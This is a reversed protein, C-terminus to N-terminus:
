VGKRARRSARLSCADIDPCYRMKTWQSYLWKGGSLRKGCRNCHYTRTSTAAM